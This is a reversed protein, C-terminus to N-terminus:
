KEKWDLNAFPQYGDEEQNSNKNKINKQKLYKKIEERQPCTNEGLGCEVYMPVELLVSERLMERFNFIGSKVNELPEVHYLNNIIIEVKVSQNCIACPMTALTKVKLHLILSDNTLYVDGQVSVPDSFLLDAEVMDIFLPDFTEDIVETQGDRLQDVYIKFIDDM